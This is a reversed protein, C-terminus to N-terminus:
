FETESVRRLILTENRPLHGSNTLQVKTSGRGRHAPEDACRLAVAAGLAEDARQLLVEQPHLGEVGDLLKAPRQEVEALGVVGSPQDLPV